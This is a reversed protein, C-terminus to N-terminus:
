WWRKREEKIATANSYIWAQAYRTWEKDGPKYNPSFDGAGMDFKGANPIRDDGWNCRLTRNSRQSTWTGVFQNNCSGDAFSEIDDYRLAGKKNIFWKTLLVGTFIGAAPQNPTEALQYAALLIGEHRAPSIIEDVRTSFKRLERVHRLIFTGSFSCINSAVKSKGTILYTDTHLSDKVASLLKIRLRQNGNGIIGVVSTSPTNLWLPAFNYKLYSNKLETSKFEQSKLIDHLYKQSEVSLPNETKFGAILFFLTFLLPKLPINTKM